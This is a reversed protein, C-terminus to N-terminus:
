QASASNESTSAKKANKLVDSATGYAIPANSGCGGPSFVTPISYTPSVSPGFEVDSPMYSIVTYYSEYHYDYSDSPLKVRKIEKGNKFYVKAAAASFRKDGAYTVWGTPVIEDYEESVPGYIEVMLEDYGDYNYDYVYTAIYIPYDYPNRFKMDISWYDITADLGYPAYSSAYMHARRELIDMDAKLACLYLTTSAQCIGGGYDQVVKGKSYATSPLYAGTTGNPYNHTAGNTTDGTMDNFSFTEGPNVITGNAAKIALEMNQVSNYVNAATTYHSAILKTNAKIEELSVDFHTLHTEISFSGTKEGSELISKIKSSLEEHDLMFGDKGDEYTFKEVATPDFKTVHADIPKIDFFDATKQIAAEVSETNLATKVRFDTVDGRSTTEVTPSELEGRSYHYAQLLVASVNTDYNFDNQTLTMTKGDCVVTVSIPERIEVLREQLADYAEALTKGGLEVGEVTVDKGFLINTTDVNEIEPMDASFESPDLQESSSLTNGKGEPTTKNESTESMVTQAERNMNMAVAVAGAGVLLVAICAAIIKVPVKRNKKQVPIHSHNEKKVAAAFVVEEADEDKAGQSNNVAVSDAGAFVVEDEYDEEKDSESENKEKEQVPSVTEKEKALEEPVDSRSIESPQKSMEVPKHESSRVKDDVVTATVAKFERTENRKETNEM